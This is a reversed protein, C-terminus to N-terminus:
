EGCYAVKQQSSRNLTLQQKMSFHQSHCYISKQLLDVRAIFGTCCLYRLLSLIMGPSMLYSCLTKIYVAVRKHLLFPSSLFSANEDCDNVHLITNYITIANWTTEENFFIYNWVFYVVNFKKFWQTYTAAQLKCMYKSLPIITLAKVCYFGGFWPADEFHNFYNNPSVTSVKSLTLRLAFALM